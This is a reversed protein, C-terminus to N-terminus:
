YYVLERRETVVDGGRQSNRKIWHGHKDFKYGYYTTSSSSKIPEYATWIYEILVNGKNISQTQQITDGDSNIATVIQKECGVYKFLWTIGDSDKFEIPRGDETHSIIVATDAYENANELLSELEDERYFGPLEKQVSIIYQLKGDEYERRIEVGGNEPERILVPRGDKDYHIEQRGIENGDSKMEVTTIATKIGKDPFCENKSPEECSTILFILISIIYMNKM